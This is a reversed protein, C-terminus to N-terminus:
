GIIATITKSGDAHETTMMMPEAAAKYICALARKFSAPPEHDDGLTASTCVLSEDDPSPVAFSALMAIKERKCIELIQQMLPSIEADYIAEKDVM